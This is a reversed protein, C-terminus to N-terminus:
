RNSSKTDKPVFFKNKEVLEGSDYLEFHYWGSRGFNVKEIILFEEKLKTLEFIMNDQDDFFKITYKKLPADPLHLIVGNDKSTYVRRSPYTIVPKVIVPTNINPTPNPPINISSDEFPNVHQASTSDSVSQQSEKVPRAPKTLIYSGGQFSIFLRYYMKNYPPNEDAYGNEKNEPNLVSGITSFNRLSDYSRQINITTAPITYQNQWSVVIKGNINKVTIDPLVQQAKAVASLTFAIFFLIYKKNFITM